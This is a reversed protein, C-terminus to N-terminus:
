TECSQSCIRLMCTTENVQSLPNKELWRCTAEYPTIRGIQRNKSHFNRSVLWNTLSEVMEQSSRYQYRYVTDQQILGNVREVMGNTKPTYPRTNRHEIGLDACLQLFPHVKTIPKRKATLFYNYVYEKGNDTLVKHIRFPFFKSCRRLFDRSSDLNKRKYVRLFVLRTARDVAVYCYRKIGEFSPLQFSDIHLYGPAYEKFRGSETRPRPLKNLKGRVLVRYASSRNLNPMVPSLMDVIDDLPLGFRRLCLVGRQEEDSLAYHITHPRCSRCDTDSRHKWHHVTSVSIGWHRAIDRYGCTCQQIM